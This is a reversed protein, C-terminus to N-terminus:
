SKPDKSVPTVSLVYKEEDRVAHITYRSLLDKADPKTITLTMGGADDPKGLDLVTRIMLADTAQHFGAMVDNLNLLDKKRAELERKYAEARHKQRGAEDNKKRPKKEEPM